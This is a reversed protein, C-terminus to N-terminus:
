AGPLLESWPAGLARLRELDEPRDVDDRVELELWSWGLAALRARTCELVGDTGWPMDTFLVPEVRHLGLLVYGGDRAPGLVADYGALAAHAQRLTVADLAPCDSGIVIAPGGDAVAAALAHAMRAGLDAGSQRRLRAGSEAALTALGDSGGADATWLEVRDAGAGAAARLAHRVLAHHLRAAGAAGLAPILRTKTRGAVPARAFVLITGM